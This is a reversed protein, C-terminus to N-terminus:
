LDLEGQAATFTTTVPGRQAALLHKVEELAEEDDLDCELAISLKGEDTVTVKRIRTVLEASRAPFPFVRGTENNTTFTREGM